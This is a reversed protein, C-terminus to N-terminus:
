ETWESCVAMCDQIRRNSDSLLLNVGARRAETLLEKHWHTEPQFVMLHMELTELEEGLAFTIQSRLVDAISQSHPDDLHTNALGIFNM